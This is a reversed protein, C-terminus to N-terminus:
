VVGIDGKYLVLTVRISRSPGLVSADYCIAAREQLIIASEMSIGQQKDLAICMTPCQVYPLLKTKPDHNVRREGSHLKHDRVGVWTWTSIGGVM